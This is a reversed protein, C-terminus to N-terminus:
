LFEERVNLTDPIYHARHLYFIENPKSLSRLMGDLTFPSPLTAVQPNPVVLEPGAQASEMGEDARAIVTGRM